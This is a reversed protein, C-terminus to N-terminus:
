MPFGECPKGNLEQTNLPPNAGFTMQMVNHLEGNWANPIQPMPEKYGNISSLQANIATRLADSPNVIGSMGAQFLAQQSPHLQPHITDPSFGISSSPGGRSHFLDKSLLGEMNFDLRPKVAALKMSLFEVQRQLSQVYNIIEDLMVAKGTVKNCGPVLDQLFKMRESIKERRVREALSHSNTAQGRRARVHFCDEKPADSSDNAQKENPKVTAMTSSNQEPKQDTDMTDKSTGVSPQSAGQLQDPEIDQDSRRRKKAALGKSSSDGAPSALNPAEERAGGSFEPEASENGLVGAGHLSGKDRQERMPSRSSSGHDVPLSADVRAETTSMKSQQIQAGLVGKPTNSYSSLSEATGFPSVMGNLNGGHFSSFRAAREIFASNTPFHSLSPSLVGPGTQLFIGSGKSSSDSPNWGMDLRLPGPVLNGAPLSNSAAMSSQVNNGCFGSNQSHASPNWLSPHFSEVMSVSPCPSSVMPHASVLGISPNGFQRDASMGSSHYNPHDGTKELGFKDKKNIDM